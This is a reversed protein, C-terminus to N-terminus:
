VIQQINNESLIEILEPWKQSNSYLKPLEQIALISNSGESILYKILLSEIKSKYPKLIRSYYRNHGNSTFNVKKAIEDIELFNIQNIKKEITKEPVQFIKSLTNLEYQKNNLAICSIIDILLEDTKDVKEWDAIFITEYKDIENLTESVSTSQDLIYKKLNAVRGPIGNCLKRIELINSKDTKIDSFFTAIEDLSFSTLPFAKSNTNKDENFYKKLKDYYGSILFNFGYGLPLSNFLQKLFESHNENFLDLGDIVFYFTEGTTKKKRRLTDTLRRLYGLHTPYIKNENLDEEYILWYIQNILDYLISDIEISSDNIPTLFVSFAQMSRRRTFQSLITTKGLDDEGELFLINIGSDFISDIAELINERLIENENLKPFNLSFYTLDVIKLTQM